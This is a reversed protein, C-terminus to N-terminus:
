TLSLFCSVKLLPIPTPVSDQITGMYLESHAGGYTCYAELDLNKALASTTFYSTSEYRALLQSDRKANHYGKPDVISSVVNAAGRELGLGVGRPKYWDTQLQYRSCDEENSHDPHRERWSPKDVVTAFFLSAAGECVQTVEGLVM